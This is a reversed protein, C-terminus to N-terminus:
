RLMGAIVGVLEDLLGPGRRARIHDRGQRPKAEVFHRGPLRAPAGDTLPTFPEFRNATKM